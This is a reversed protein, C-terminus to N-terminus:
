HNSYVSVIDSILLLKIGNLQVVKGLGVSEELALTVDRCIDTTASDGDAVTFVDALVDMWLHSYMDLLDTTHALVYVMWLGPLSDVTLLPLATYQVLYTSMPYEPWVLGIYSM